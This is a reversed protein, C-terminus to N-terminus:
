DALVVGDEVRVPAPKLGAKGAPGGMCAGTEVDFSAGHFPCIIYRGKSVLTKGSPLSLPRGAHPCVNIYARVTEGTRVLLLPAGDWDAPRGGPDPIDKLAGLATGAPPLQPGESVRDSRGARAADM